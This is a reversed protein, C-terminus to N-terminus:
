DGAPHGRMAEALAERSGVELKRYIGRLHYEITKPSLFLAAATERTTRGEALLVAIQLEQPTLQALAPAGRAHVREGTAALESRAFESWPEAGLEDFQEIAARLQDRARVRRRSRRLRAGYALRTRAAEYRDRTAAHLEIAEEFSAEFDDDPALLGAVRAARAMAWPLGKEVAGRRYGVAVEAAAQPKGLRLYVEVLEPAPSLDVDNIGYLRLAGVRDEYRSCADDLRGLALELDGLATLSWVELVRLGLRSSLELAETAHARCPEERGQRAELCALRALSVTLEADQGSERAVDIAEYFTAEAEVWEGCAARHVGVHGLLYPLTGVLSRERAERLARDVLAHGGGADQLWLAGVSAWALLRPDNRLEDSRELVAVGHRMLQQGAEGDGSFTAAMGRSMSAFFESRTDACAGAVAAIREAVGRMAAADGAYFGCDVAEALMVVARAPDVVSAREAAELLIRRAEAVHGQRAAIHGRSHEIELLLAPDEAHRAAADLLQVARDGLRGLWAADSAEYLLRSRRRADSALGAAREFARSSADYASRDRARAGAQELASSAAADPGIAAFALHWARRDDDADPLADALARHAARREAPSASAYVASRALPHRWVAVPGRLEVLGAAEGAAIEAIEVGLKVASRGVLALDGSDAAALLVLLRRPMEDLLEFRRAYSEAVSALVPIAHDFPSEEAWDRQAALELLALPNGATGRHLAAAFGDTIRGGREVPARNRLLETSAQLDLGQVPVRPLDAGDLLSPEDARVALVVAVADDALRRAAFLLANATSDDLWQADDVLVLVPEDEAYTALLTLTAAGIAFRDEGSAPRLALASGLAQAQPPPLEDLHTLAPRLLDLLGAFPIHAESQVGRARLLRMGVAQQEAHGLLASKGIGAEGVLAVVVGKGSRASALAEDLIRQEPERGVLPSQDRGHERHGAPVRTDM